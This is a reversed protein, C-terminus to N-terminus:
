RTNWITGTWKYLKTEKGGSFAPTEAVQGYEQLIALYKRVTPKSMGSRDAVQKATFYLRYAGEGELAAEMAAAEVRRGNKVM